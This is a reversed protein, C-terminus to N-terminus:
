FIIKSIFNVTICLIIGVVTPVVASAVTWKVSGTEKKITWLTTACPFHNIYFIAMCLATTVTWGNEVFIERINGVSDLSILGSGGTYCMIVLPLVIENAPLGLIFATLIYGDLGMINGLPELFGAIYNLLCINNVYTNQLLWIIVGAPASVAVARGLVFLVKERVSRVIIGAIDPKRYPPLELVFSSKEGKLITSGLIYSIGLTIFFAMIIAGLVAIATKFTLMKGGAFVGALIILSAFRGNCPIFNNTIIATLRERPSDIIRASVVGAANCGLGMCVTLSM